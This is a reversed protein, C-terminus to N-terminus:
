RLVEAAEAYSKADACIGLNALAQRASGEAKKACLRAIGDPLKIHQREAVTNVLGVLSLCDVPKLDYHLCRSRITDPIKTRQTTCLLWYAFEPPQEIIKLLSNWASSSLMHCEDIIIAKVGGGLPYYILGGSVSRMDDVGSNAAADVEVRDAPQCGLAAATIYALTTKGIGSRGTFLFAHGWKNKIARELSRVTATNGLVKDFSAPRYKTLLSTATPDEDLNIVNAKKSRYVFRPV